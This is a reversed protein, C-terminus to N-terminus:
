FVKDMEERQEVTYTLRALSICEVVNTFVVPKNSRDFVLPIKNVEQRTVRLDQILRLVVFMLLYFTTIRTGAEVLVTGLHTSHPVNAPLM